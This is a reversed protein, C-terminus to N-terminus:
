HGTHRTHPARPTLRVRPSRYGFTVFSPFRDLEAGPVALRLDPFREFLAPLATLAETRALATGLCRHVGHGFALHKGPKRTIDFRDSEPGHARPDWGATAWAALVAEGRAIRNEGIELDSTAFRLPMSAVPGAWRLTEEVVNSWPVEGRLVSALQDPHDLLAVVANAILNVTTEHGAGLILLLQDVLEGESLRSENDRADILDTTMDDGPAARKREVLGSLTGRVAALIEEGSESGVGSTNMIAEIFAAVREREGDDLGFLECIVRMPVPHAFAERLDVPEGAPRAAMADLVDETVREVVPKMLATRRASFAPAVLNRLRRHDEAETSMMHTVGIYPLIWHAAPNALIAEPWSSWHRPNRSVRSDTVLRELTAQRTPYWARIEGPLEVLVLDGLSRLHAAESRIDRGSPDLRYAPMRAM